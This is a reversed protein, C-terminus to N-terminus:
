ELYVENCIVSFHTVCLIARKYESIVIIFTMECHKYLASSSTPNITFPYRSPLHCDKKQGSHNHATFQKVRPEVSGLLANLTSKTKKNASVSRNPSKRLSSRGRVQSYSTSVLKFHGRVIDFLSLLGAPAITQWNAPACTGQVISRRGQTEVCESKLPTLPHPPLKM